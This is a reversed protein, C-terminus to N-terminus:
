AVLEFEVEDIPGSRHETGLGRALRRALRHAPKNDALMTATFREIGRTRAAAALREVLETGIGEGQFPDGVVVAFEAVAPDDSLRVFRGVGLIWDDRDARTAVLAHHNTGDVDALYRSHAESLYPKSALFRQYQSRPSLRQYAARLARADDPRIPRIRIV